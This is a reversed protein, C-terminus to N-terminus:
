QMRWPDTKLDLSYCYRGAPHAWGSGGNPKQQWDESESNFVACLQYHTPDTPHYEFVADTEPDTIRVYSLKIDELSAPLATRNHIEQVIARLRDVRARDIAMQRQVRPSGSNYFGLAIVAVVFVTAGLAFSRDRPKPM